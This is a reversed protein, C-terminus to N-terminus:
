QSLKQLLKVKVKQVAVSKKSNAVEAGFSRAVTCIICHCILGDSRLLCKKGSKYTQNIPLQVDNGNRKNNLLLYCGNCIGCPYNPDDRNIEADVYTKLSTSSLPRTRTEKKTCIARVKKRCENHDFM